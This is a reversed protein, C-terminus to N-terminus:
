RPTTSSYIATTWGPPPGSPLRDDSLKDRAPCQQCEARVYEAAGSNDPPARQTVLRRPGDRATAPRSLLSGDDGILRESGRHSQTLTILSHVGTRPDWNRDPSTRFCIQRHFARPSQHSQHSQREDGGISKLNTPRTSKDIVTYLATVDTDTQKPPTAHM